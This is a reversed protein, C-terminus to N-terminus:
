SATMWRTASGSTSAVSRPSCSSSAQELTLGSLDITIPLDRTVRSKELTRWNVFINQQSADRLRDIVDSLRAGSSRQEGVVADLGPPHAPRRPGRDGARPPTRM